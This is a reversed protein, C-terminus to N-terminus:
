KNILLRKREEEKELWKQWTNQVYYISMFHQIFLYFPKPSFDSTDEFVQLRHILLYEYKMRGVTLVLLYNSVMPHLCIM